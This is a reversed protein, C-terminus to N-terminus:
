PMFPSTEYEFSSQRSPKSCSLNEHVDHTADNISAPGLSVWELSLIDRDDDYASSLASVTPFIPLIITM